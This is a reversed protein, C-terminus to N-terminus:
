VDQLVKEWTEGQVPLGFPSSAMGGPSTALWVMADQAQFANSKLLIWQIVSQLGAAMAIGVLIMRATQGKVLATAEGAIGEQM